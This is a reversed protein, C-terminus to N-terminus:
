RGTTGTKEGMVEMYDRILQRSRLTKGSLQYNIVLRCLKKALPLVRADSWDRAAIAHLEEGRLVIGNETYRSSVGQELDVWYSEGAGIKAGEVTLGALDPMYGLMGLLALEFNRLCIEISSRELSKERKGSAQGLYELAQRYANFIDPAPEAPPLLKLLLENLYYGSYLALGTLPMRTCGEELVRLQKLDGPGLVSVNLLQFTNLLGQWTKSKRAGKAVASIRGGQRTILDLIVSTERYARCHLIYAEQVSANAM